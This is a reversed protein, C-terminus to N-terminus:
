PQEQNSEEGQKGPHNKGRGWHQTLRTASSGLHPMGCPCAVPPKAAQGQEETTKAASIMSGARFDESTEFSLPLARGQSEMVYMELGKDGNPKTHTGWINHSLHEKFPPLQASRTLKLKDLQM